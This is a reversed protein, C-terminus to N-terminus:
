FAVRVLLMLAFRYREFFRVRFGNQISKLVKLWSSDPGGFESEDEAEGVLDLDYFKLRDALNYVNDVLSSQVLKPYAIIFTSIKELYALSKEVLGRDVLRTAM